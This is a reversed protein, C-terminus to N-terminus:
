EGAGSMEQDPGPRGKKPPKIKELVGELSPDIELVAARMANHFKSRAAEREEPTKAAKMAEGAEAVAPSGKAKERAAELKEKEGDTLNWVKKGGGKNEKLTGRLSEKLGPDIKQMEERMAAHFEKAAAEAKERLAVVEPNKMAAERAAKFREKLEEPMRDMAKEEKQLKHPSKPPPPQAPEALCVLPLLCAAVLTQTKMRVILGLMAVSTAFFFRNRPM